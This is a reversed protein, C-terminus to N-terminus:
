SGEVLELPDTTCNGRLYRGPAQRQHGASQCAPGGPSPFFRPAPGRPQCGPSNLDQGKPATQSPATFSQRHDQSRGRGANVTPNSPSDPAKRHSSRYTRHATPSRRLIRAPEEAAEAGRPLRANEEEAAKRADEAAIRLAEEEYSYLLPRSTQDDIVRVHDEEVCFRLRTAKCLLHGQPDPEIPVYKGASDLRYGKLGLRYRNGRRPLDILVYEPIGARSYATVKDVEDVNRIAKSSPSVIEVILDPRV